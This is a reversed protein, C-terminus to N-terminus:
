ATAAEPPFMTELVELGTLGSALITQEEDELAALRRQANVDGAEAAAKLAQRDRNIEELRNMKEYLRGIQDVEVTGPAVIDLVTLAEHVESGIRRIRGETQTNELMSWSRQLFILTDAKTLTLGTGGAKITLLMIRVRGAMFDAVGANRQDETQGGTVARWTIGAKDLRAQALEILQRSEAAIVVPKDGLAELEDLMVDLKSSPDSLHVHGEADVEAYSSSFQLLRLNQVMSNTAVVLRGDDLRTVMGAALEKYAKAQKPSMEAFRRVRTVPPLDKLVLDSSMRRFRPDLIRFFEASTDPRIGIIDLGGFPSWSMLAFREQYKTRAPYDEPAIGHMIAWLDGPHNAIPTGTLSFRFEARHQVAWAARTQKAAPDKQKHAEDAIVTRFAFGDLEKEHVECTSTRTETGGHEVCRKLRVTGFPALRSHLRVAEWNIIIAVREGAAVAAAAERFVKPKNKNSSIIFSRVGPAWAALHEAWPLKVSNPCIICAPWVDEGISELLNLAVIATVTKGTGLDDGLLVRRGYALFSVGARQFPRLRPDYGAEPVETLGRLTLCPNIRRELEQNAWDVLAPGVQLRDGFVGRLTQCSGWSLPGRWAHEAAAWTFGPVQKILERETFDTQAVIRGDLADVYAM